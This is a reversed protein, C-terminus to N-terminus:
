KAATKKLLDKGQFYDSIALNRPFMKRKKALHRYHTGVQPDALAATAYASAQAFRTRAEKQAKSPKVKSMDPKKSIIIEGQPSRKFILDEYLTGHLEKIIPPLKVKPM